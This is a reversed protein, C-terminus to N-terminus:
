FGAKRRSAKEKGKTKPLRTGFAGREPQTMSLGPVGDHGQSPHPAALQSSQVERGPLDAGGNGEVINPLLVRQLMVEQSIQATKELKKQLRAAQRLAKRRERPDLSQTAMEEQVLKLRQNTNRYSYHAPDDEISNPAHFLINSINKHHSLQLPPGEPSFTAYQRLRTVALEEESMPSQSTSPQSSQAGLGDSEAEPLPLSVTRGPMFGPQPNSVGANQAAKSVRLTLNGLFIVGAIQRVTRERNVRNRDTVECSLSEVYSTTLHNYAHLLEYESPGNLDLLSLGASEVSYEDQSKLNDLWANAIESAQEIDMIQHGELFDSMLYLCGTENELRLTEWRKIAEQLAAEFSSSGNESPRVPDYDLLREWNRFHSMARALAQREQPDPVREATSRSESANDDVVFDDWDDDSVRRTSQIQIGTTKPLSWHIFQDGGNQAASLQGQRHKYVAEIIKGDNTCAILKFLGYDLEDSAINELVFGIPCLVLDSITSMRGKLQPPLQFSSPDRLSVTNPDFPGEGFTYVTAVHTTRSFLLVWTTQVSEFLAMRLGTDSGDRFHNWSCVLALPEAGSKEKWSVESSRFIMLRSTTLVFVHDQRRTSNKVDLIQHRKSQLGLRMDAHGVFEGNLKFVGALRRNCVLIREVVGEVNTLWCIMHWDDFCQQTGISLPQHEVISLGGSSQLHIQYLVHTSTARRGKTKWISWNGSTDVIAISNKEHPHFDSHAHPHGGTRSSPITLIPCPDLLSGSRNLGQGLGRSTLFVESRNHGTSPRLLTTGSSKVVLFQTRNRHRSCSLQRIPEASDNWYALAQNGVCPVRCSRGLGSDDALSIGCVDVAAFQVQEGGLGTPFAVIPTAPVDGHSGTEFPRSSNGFALVNGTSRRRSEDVDQATSAYTFAPLEVAATVADPIQKLLRNKLGQGATTAEATFNANLSDEGSGWEQEHVLEFAPLSDRTAHDEEDSDYPARAQHQRLFTWRHHIDDYIATGFHGYNLANTEHTHKIRRALKSDAM